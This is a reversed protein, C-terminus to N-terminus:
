SAISNLIVKINSTSEMIEFLITVLAIVSGVFVFTAGTFAFYYDKAKLSWVGTTIGIGFSLSFLQHIIFLEKYNLHQYEIFILQHMALRLLYTSAIILLIGSAVLNNDIKKTKGLTKKWIQTGCFM